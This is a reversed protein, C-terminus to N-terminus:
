GGGNEVVRWQPAPVRLPRNLRGPPLPQALTWTGPAFPPAELVYETPGPDADTDLRVNLRLRMVEGGRRVVVEDVYVRCDGQGWWYLAHTGEPVIGKWHADLRRVAFGTDASDPDVPTYTVTDFDSPHIILGKADRVLLALGSPWCHQASAPRALAACAALALLLPLLSIRSSEFRSRARM